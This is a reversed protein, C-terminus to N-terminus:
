CLMDWRQESQMACSHMIYNNSHLLITIASDKLMRGDAPFSMGANTKM